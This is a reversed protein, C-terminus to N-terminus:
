QPKDTKCPVVDERRGGEERRMASRFMIISNVTLSANRFVSMRRHLFGNADSFTMCLAASQRYEQVTHM